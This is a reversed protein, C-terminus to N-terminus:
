NIQVNNYIFHPYFLVNKVPNNHCNFLLIWHITDPMFTCYINATIMTMIIIMKMM